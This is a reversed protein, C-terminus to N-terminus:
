VNFIVGPAQFFGYECAVSVGILDSDRPTPCLFWCELSFLSRQLSFAHTLANIPLFVQQLLKM